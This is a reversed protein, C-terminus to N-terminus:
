TENTHTLLARLEDASSPRGLLYGQAGDCGERRLFDLQQPTEVGEGVVKLGLSHGMAIIARAIVGNRDVTVDELFSKDIKMADIPLGELRSLASYGTGFDDLTLTIGRARLAELGSYATASPRITARETIEFELRRPDFNFEALLRDAMALLGGENIQVASINVSLRLRQHGLWQDCLQMQQLAARMVYETLPVILGSEEALRVIDAAAVAAGQHDWRVLAEISAVRGSPLAIVPQYHVHLASRELAQRLASLAPTPPRWENMESDYRQWSNRVEKAHYQATDAARLLAEKSGGHQPYVAVGISCSVVIERGDVILPAACSTLLVRAVADADESERLDSIVVAFEDGSLRAVLDSRRVAGRMRQSVGCLVLDGVRHGYTDNIEKFRDLDIFLVAVASSPTSDSLAASLQEEFLARNPLGTLMDHFALQRLEAHRRETLARILDLGTGLGTYRGNRTVIFGDFVYRNQESLLRTGVEDIHTGEDLVLPDMEMLVSVPKNLVLERGFRSALRELFKFRNILGVPRDDTDVIAVAFLNPSIDFADRARACTAEIPLPPVFTALEGARTPPPALADTQEIPMMDARVARM